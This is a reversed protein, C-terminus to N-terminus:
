IPAVGEDGYSEDARAGTSPDIRDHASTLDRAECRALVLAPLSQQRDDSRATLLCGVPIWAAAQVQRLSLAVFAARRKLVYDPATV